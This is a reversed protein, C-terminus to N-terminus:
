SGGVKPATLWVHVFEGVSQHNRQVSPGIVGIATRHARPHFHQYGFKSVLLRRLYLLVSSRTLQGFHALGISPRQQPSLAFPAPAIAGALGAPVPDCGSACVPRGRAHPALIGRFYDLRVAGLLRAAGMVASGYGAIARM